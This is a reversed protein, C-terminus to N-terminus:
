EQNIDGKTEKLLDAIDEHMFDRAVQLPTEDGMLCNRDAGVELLKAVAAEHGTTFFFFSFHFCYVLVISDICENSGHFDIIEVSTDIPTSDESLTQSFFNIIMCAYQNWLNDM